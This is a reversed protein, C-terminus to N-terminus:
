VHLVASIRASTPFEFIPRSRVTAGVSVMGEVSSDLQRFRGAADESVAPGTLPSRPFNAAFDSAWPRLRPPESRHGFPVSASPSLAAAEFHRSYPLFCLTRVPRPMWPKPAPLSASFLHSGVFGPILRGRRPELCVSTHVSITAFGLGPSRTRSKLSRSESTANLRAEHERM